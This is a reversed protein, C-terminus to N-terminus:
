ISLESFIKEELHDPDSIASVFRKFAELKYNRREEFQMELENIMSDSLEKELKYFIGKEPTKAIKLENNM